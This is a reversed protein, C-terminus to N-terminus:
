PRQASRAVTRDVVSKFEDFWVRKKDGLLARALDCRFKEGNSLISYPKIWSPPSAEAALGTIM